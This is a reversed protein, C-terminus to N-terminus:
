LRELVGALHTMLAFGKVELLCSLNSTFRYPAFYANCERAGGVAVMSGM